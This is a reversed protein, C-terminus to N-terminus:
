KDGARDAGPLAAADTPWRRRLWLIGDDVLPLRRIYSAAVASLGAILWWWVFERLLWFLNALRNGAAGPLMAHLGADIATRFFEGWMLFLVAAILYSLLRRAPGAEAAFRAQVLAPLVFLFYIGRYYVNQGAFFCGVILLAGIAAFLQERAAWDIEISGLLSVTRRARAGAFATLMAFLAFGFLAASAPPLEIIEAIGFPLNQASFSDSFHSLRPINALARGLEDHYGAAFVALAAATGAAVLLAHRRRERAALALLIAPYYKLLAAGVLVAYSGYRWRLSRTQLLGAGLVLLFIVLDTNARELAYVTAPSFAAVALVALEGASRPRILLGLAAIFLLDLGAGVWPTAAVTTGRPLLTLWLPSYVHVRGLVDCPNVVYVDIGRAQCEAASLVAHSDLFPFPGPHIGLFRLVALGISQEGTLWLAAMIAFAGGLAAPIALRYKGSGGPPPGAARAVIRRRNRGGWAATTKVRQM